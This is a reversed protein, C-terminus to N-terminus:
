LLRKDAALWEPMCVTVFGSGSTTNELPRMEIQALPLWVEQTGDDLLVARDTSLVVKAVIEVIEASDPM